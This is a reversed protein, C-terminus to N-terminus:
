NEEVLSVLHIFGEGQIKLSTDGITVKSGLKAMEKLFLPHATFQHKAGRYKFMVTEEAWGDPGQGRVTLSSKDITVDVSQEYKIKDDAVISAWDLAKELDKPLELTTGEVEMFQSLDPYNGTVLRVCFRVGAENLFYMWNRGFGYKTPKYNPLKELHRAVINLDLPVDGPIDVTVDLHCDARTIRFEDFSEIFNETIHLCTLIPIHGSRAASFQCISLAKIFQEPLDFWEEIEVLEDDIPLKIESELRIGARNRGSSFKLENEGTEIKIDAEPPLKALFKYLPEAPIAGTISLDIPVLVAVEDNFTELRGERFIISTAQEMIEKNALGPKILELAKKLEGSKM